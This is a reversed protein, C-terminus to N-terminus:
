RYPEMEKIIEPAVTYGLEVAKDCHTIALEPQGNELYAIALNNHAIAFNPEMSLVKLNTEISEAIMGKMLYANALTAYAQLFRTNFKVAKELAFIAEDLKGKQLYVFGINGYGEAFGARSQVAKQNFELCGDLDGRQLRLGGLQVYAEALNPSCNLAEHLEKEAEDYKKQGLLAVALNYHTTGCDPNGALAARQQTIYEEVNKAKSMHIKRENLVAVARKSFIAVGPFISAKSFHEIKNLNLSPSFKLRMFGHLIELILIQAQQCIGSAKSASISCFPGYQLPRM